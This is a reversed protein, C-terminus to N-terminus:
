NINEHNEYENESESNKDDNEGNEAFAVKLNSLKIGNKKLEESAYYGHEGNLKAFYKGNSLKPCNKQYVDFKLQRYKGCNYHYLIYFVVTAILAVGGAWLSASAVVAPITLTLELEFVTLVLSIAGAVVHPFFYTLVSVIFVILCLCCLFGFLKRKSKADKKNTNLMIDSVCEKGEIKNQIIHMEEEKNQILNMEEERPLKKDLSATNGQLLVEQMYQSKLCAMCQGRADKWWYVWDWPWIKYDRYFSSGTNILTTVLLAAFAVFSAFGSLSCLTAVIAGALSVLFSLGVVYLLFHSWFEKNLKSYKEEAVKVAYDYITKRVADQQSINKNKAKELSGILVNENNNSNDIVFNNDNNDKKNNGLNTDVGSATSIENINPQTSANKNKKRQATSLKKLGVDDLNIFLKVLAAIVEVKFAPTIMVKSRDKKGCIDRDTLDTFVSDWISKLEGHINNYKISVERKYLCNALQVLADYTLYNSNFILNLVYQYEDSKSTGILQERQKEHGQETLEILKNIFSIQQDKTLTKLAWYKKAKIQNLVNREYDYFIIKPKPPEVPSYEGPKMQNFMGFKHNNFNPFDSELLNNKEKKNIINEGNVSNLDNEGKNELMEVVDGKLVFFVFIYINVHTLVLNKKIGM